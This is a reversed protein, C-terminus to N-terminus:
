FLIAHIPGRFDAGHRSVRDFANGMLPHFIRLYPARDGDLALRERVPGHRGNHEPSGLPVGVANVLCCGDIQETFQHPCLIDRTTCQTPRGYSPPIRTTMIFPNRFYPRITDDYGAYKIGM